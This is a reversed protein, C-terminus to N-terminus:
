AFALGGDTSRYKTVVCSRVTEPRIPVPMTKTSGFNEVLEAMGM